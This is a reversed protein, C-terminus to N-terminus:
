LHPRCLTLYFSFLPLFFNGGTLLINSALPYLLHPPAAAASQMIAEALGAQRIGIDSPNFLIETVAFRENNMRVVQVDENNNNNNNHSNNVNNGQGNQSQSDIPDRVFGDKNGPTGDPLVFERLIPNNKKRTTQM